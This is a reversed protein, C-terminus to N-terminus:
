IFFKTLIQEKNIKEKMTEPLNSILYSPIDKHKVTFPVVILYVGNKDCMKMKFKDRRIQNFFEESSQNTFNPWNYHQEGNYEVALKFEENYCDLELKCGTEPNKLWDPRVSVFPIGYIREMTDCCIKEGKSIPKKNKPIKIEEIMTVLEEQSIVTPEEQSIVTPEEQSIMETNMCVHSDLFEEKIGKVYSGTYGTINEPLLPNIGIFKDRSECFIWIIFLILLVFGICVWPGYKQYDFM